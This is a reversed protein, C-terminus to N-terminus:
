NNCSLSLRPGPLAARGYSWPRSRTASLGLAASTVSAQLWAAIVRAQECRALPARRHTQAGPGWGVYTGGLDRAFQRGPRGPPAPTAATALRSMAAARRTCPRERRPKRSSKTWTARDTIVDFGSGLGAGSLARIRDLMALAVQPMPLDVPAQRASWGALLVREAGTHTGMVLCPRRGPDPVSPSGLDAADDLTDTGSPREDTILLIRSLQGPLCASWEADLDVAVMRASGLYPAFRAQYVAVDGSLVAAEMAERDGWVTAVLYHRAGQTLRRGVLTQSLGALDTPRPAIEDLLQGRIEAVASEPALRSRPRAVPHDAGRRANPALQRRLSRLVEDGDPRSPGRAPPGLSSRGSIVSRLFDIQGIRGNSRSRISRLMVDGLPGCDDAM